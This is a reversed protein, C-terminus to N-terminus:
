EKGESESIISIARDLANNYAKQRHESIKMKGVGAYFYDDPLPYGKEKEKELKEVISKIRKKHESTFLDILQDTINDVENLGEREYEAEQEKNGAYDSMLFYYVLNLKLITSKIEERIKEELTKM